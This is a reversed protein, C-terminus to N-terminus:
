GHLLAERAIDVRSHAKLKTLISSVHSQVTRRSLLLETAIDPNSLGKAVLRAIILEAPSLAAWGHAPRQRPGRAGRRIGFPRVRAAARRLDWQAGLAAYVEMARAVNSKAGRRDGREALVVALDECTRAFEMTRGAAHLYRGAGALLDPDATLLGRCRDVAAVRGPTPPGPDTECLETAERATELDDVAMAARVVDPLSLHREMQAYRPELFELLADRAQEPRGDREALLGRAAILFGRNATDFATEIRRGAFADLRAAATARDDRHCSILAVVGAAMPAVRPNDPLDGASDLEALADDWRGSWYHMIAAPTHFRTMGAYGTRREALDRAEALSREAEDFRDLISLALIRNGLLLLRLELYKLDDALLDLARDLHALRAPQDRRMLCTTSLNLLCYGIALRDGSAEAYALARRGAADATGLDAVYISHIRASMAMLRARWVVPVDPQNLGQEVAQLADGFRGTRLLREALIWRMEAALQPNGTVALVQRTLAGADRGLRFLTRALAGALEDWHAAGVPVQAVARELLEVAVAPSRDALEPAARALWGAMWADVAASAPLLQAAVREASAGAAVLAEATHRHLASRVVGPMEEYLAQRILPHRFSLRGGAAIVGAATAEAFVNRLESVPRDLVVAVDDISFESGLLTAARLAVTAEHSLFGLRRAIAAALSTPVRQQSGHALEAVTADVTVADDRVLADILERLYLPNGAAQESLRRLRPGPPAGVLGAVLAAAAPAPLPGLSIRAGDDAVHVRLRDLEARHPVPRCAGVLLLPLRRTARALRDWALLSTEDAWQLDDAVLVLPAEACLQDVVALVREVLAALQGEGPVFAAPPQRRLMAAISARRPDPSRTDIGLCDLMLRLPFRPSLEDAAAWGVACGLGPAGALAHRLLASKGIGPEGEVLVIRGRGSAAVALASRVLEVESDRGIVMGPVAEPPM